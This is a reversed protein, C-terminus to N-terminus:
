KCSEVFIKNNMDELKTIITADIIALSQDIMKIKELDSIYTKCFNLVQKYSKGQIKLLEKYQQNTLDVLEIEERTMDDYGKM